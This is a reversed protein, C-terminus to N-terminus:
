AHDRVIVRADELWRERLNFPEVVEVNAGWTRVWGLVELPMGHKDTGAQFRVELRGDPLKQKDMNPYGGEELRRQVDKTFRLTVPTTTGDVSQGIVGWANKFFDKPDFDRPIDYQTGELIEWSKMRSLKFTRLTHHYTTEKGIAYLSLNVPHVEIFYVELENTRWAGSGNHSQYQFRLRRGQLWAKAVKELALEERSSSRKGIDEASRLLVERVREPVQHALHKLARAHTEKSTARHYVLRTAAHVLLAQVENLTRKEKEIFYYRPRQGKFTLGQILDQLDELDRQVDRVSVQDGLFGRIQNVTLQDHHHLLEAIRVLRRSKFWEAKPQLM